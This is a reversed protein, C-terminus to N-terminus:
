CVPKDPNLEKYLLSLFFIYTKNPCIMDSKELYVAHFEMSNSYPFQYLQLFLPSDSGKYRPYAIKQGKSRQNDELDTAYIQDPIIKSYMVTLENTQQAMILIFYNLEFYTINM